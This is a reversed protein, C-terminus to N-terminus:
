PRQIAGTISAAVRTLGHLQRAVPFKSDAAVVTLLLALEVELQADQLSITRVQEM